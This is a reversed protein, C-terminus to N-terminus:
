ARSVKHKVKKRGKSKQVKHKLRDRLLWLRRDLLVRLVHWLLVAMTIHGAAYFSGELIAQQFDPTVTVDSGLLPLLMGYIGYAYGTTDPAGTGFLIQAKLKRPRINKLIKWLRSKVHHVLLGTEEDRLLEVYYSINQWIRKIKDYIDRITYKIKTFKESIWTGKGSAEQKHNERAEDVSEAARDKESISQSTHDEEYFNERIQEGDGSNGAEEDRGADTYMSRNEESEGGPEATTEQTRDERQPAKSANSRTDELHHDEEESASDFVTFWLVKATLKGPEPYAYYVRFLGFLWGARAAVSLDKGEKKGSIRYTVPFFLLLLIVALLLGLLVLLIIGLVSLIQLVIDFM